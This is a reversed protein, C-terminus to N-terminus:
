AAAERLETLRAQHDAFLQRVSERDEDTFRPLPVSQPKSMVWRVLVLIGSGRPPGVVVQRTEPMWVTRM